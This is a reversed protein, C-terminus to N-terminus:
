MSATRVGPALWVRAWGGATPACIVLCRRGVGGRLLVSPQVFVEFWGWCIYKGCCRPPGIGCRLPLEVSPRQIGFMRGNSERHYGFVRAGCWFGRRVGHFVVARVRDRFPLGDFPSRLAWFPHVQQLVYVVVKRLPVFPVAFVYLHVRRRGLDDVLPYTGVGGGFEFWGGGRWPGGFWLSCM